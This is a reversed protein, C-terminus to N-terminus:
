CQTMCKYSQITERRSRSINISQAVIGRVKNEERKDVDEAAKQTEAM